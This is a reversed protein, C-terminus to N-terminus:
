PGTLDDITALTVLGSARARLLPDAAVLCDAQLLTVALYEAQALGEWGGARALDWATRRSVRDGLLRIKTETMREHLALAESETLSGDGVRALLIELAASRLSNPAVLSHQPAPGQGSEALHVFTTPDIVFRTM